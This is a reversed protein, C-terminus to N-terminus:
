QSNASGLEWETVERILRMIEEEAKKLDADIEALTRSPTYKYFYRNLNIQYGVRDKSRDMWADPVHPCVEHEFYADIDEKLPVNEFDRLAPDPEYNARDGKAVPEAEGDRRTFV